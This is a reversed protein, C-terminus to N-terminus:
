TGEGAGHNRSPRWCPAKKKATPRAPSKFGCPRAALKRAARASRLSAFSRSSALAALGKARVMIVLLGGAPPRKRTRAPRAGPLWEFVVWRGAIHIFAFGYWSAMTGLSGQGCPLVHVLGERHWQPTSSAKVTANGTYSPRETGDRRPRLGRPVMASVADGRRPRLGRLVVASVGRRLRGGAGHVNRAGWRVGCNDCM